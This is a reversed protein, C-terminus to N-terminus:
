ESDSILGREVAWVAIRPRSRLGLKDRVHAVHVEVTRESIVLRDAIHRNSLGRAILAVIDRERASLIAIGGSTVGASVRAAGGLSVDSLVSLATEVATEATMVRGREWAAAAVQPGSRARASALWTATLKREIATPVTGLSERLGAAASVLQVAVAPTGHAAALAGVAELGRPIFGREGIELWITLSEGFSRKATVTDGHRLAATGLYWQNRAVGRRNGLQRAIALAEEAYVRSAPGDDFQTALEALRGLSAGVAWRDGLARRMVLARAHLARAQPVDGDGSAVVGLWYLAMASSWEDRGRECAALSEGLLARAAALDGQDSKLAAQLTLAQGIQQFAGVERGISLSEDALLTAAPYDGMFWAASAALFCARSRLGTRHAADPLALTIEFTTRAESLYGRVYWFWGVAAALRLAPQGHGRTVFWRLAARLNELEREFWAYSQASASGRLGADAIEARELFYAAFRGAFAPLEGGAALREAAYERVTELLRFRRINGQVPYSVVLSTDVLRVLLDLMSAADVGDSTCIAEVAPVDFGGAFVALRHLLSQEAHTLLEYSWDLLARLTQHREPAVRSGGNLLTFRHELRAALAEAGLSRVHAAALEIALPIGDLRRCIEAVAPANSDTLAFEPSVAQARDVFLRVADFEILKALPTSPAHPTSLPPVQWIVEGGVHLPERSTALITLGPCARLLDDALAACAGVLHECNDLILGLCRSRLHGRLAPLFSTGPKEELGLLKAVEQVVLEPRSVPALELLWVGDTFHDLVRWALHLALRSKGSGGPGTFTILRDRGIRGETSALERERGVFSTLELPLNHQQIGAPEPLARTPSRRALAVFGAHESSSLGLASTLREVTEVYPFRRVGRELDSICRASVGAREALQGQTLSATLRHQRLHAGFGARSAGDQRALRGELM